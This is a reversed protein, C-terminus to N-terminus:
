PTGFGKGAQIALVLRKGQRNDRLTYALDIRIPENQTSRSFAIRLGIGVSSRLDEIQFNGGAPWAYGSDFFVVGGLSVLHFLDDVIYIRDELNALFRKEGAFQGISYGRLGNDEGLLLIRDPDLHSGHDYAASAALTQRPLSQNYYQASGRWLVNSKERGSFGASYEGRMLTFHGQDWSYGAQASVEPFLQTQASGLWRPGIGMKAAFTPGLNFDEDRDFKEIHREKIFRIEQWGVGPQLLGFGDVSPELGPTSGELQDFKDTQHRFTLGVQRTRETSPFLSKGLGFSLERHTKRFNGVLSGSSYFPLKRQEVFGSGGVSFPAITAYFPRALSGGYRYGNTHRNADLSLSLRKGLFQPDRYTLSKDIGTSDRKYVLGVLKGSGLFNREVIGVNWNNNGGVRKFDLQLELTWADYTYVTVDVTGNRPPSPIISVRRLFKYQRLNRESERLLDLDYIDGEKFLLERRIWNSRTVIHIANAWRYLFLSRQSADFVNKSSIAVKGVKLNSYPVAEVSRSFGLLILAIPFSLPVWTKM